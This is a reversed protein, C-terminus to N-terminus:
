SDIASALRAFDHELGANEFIRRAETRYHDAGQGGVNAGAAGTALRQAIDAYTRGLEPQARMRQGEEIAARWFKRAQRPSGLLWSLRGSLQLIETRQTRVKRAIGLAYKRSKLAARALGKHARQDGANNELAQVAHHLSAVAYACLHWAPVVQSREITEAAKGLSLAAADLDGWLTQIKAKTGLALVKLSDEDREAYYKEAAEFAEELRREELLLIATMGDHNSQAFEYGYVDSIEALASLRERAGPFDGQRLRRDCDLGLYTQVDWFQGHQMAAQLLAPDVEKASDWDGALYNTVFRMAQYTFADTSNGERRVRKAQRLFQRSLAFSLGSYGVFAAMTAYMGCAQDIQRPDTRNLRRVGAVSDMFVRRPDSTTEARGKMYMVEIIQRQRPLDRVDGASGAYLRYLVALVDLGFKLNAALPKRPVYQGLQELTQDFHDVSASLDGINWLAVAINRELRIRKEADGGDPHRLVYLRSAEQFLNLAERSAASKAAAEGANFLYEEAKELNEARSYHYALMGYFDDLRDEFVSEVTEAVVGHFEKRTQLLLSEYITQQALAHAFLYEIEDIVTRDGVAVTWGAKREMLLQKERLIALERDLSDGYGQRLLIAAIVSRHFNRGIVSGIQLLRRTTEDLRDVRAMIVEQITGPIVVNSIGATARYGEGDLELVGQDILSRIVEEVYFPNGEAKEAILRRTAAPLDDARLLNDILATTDAESLPALRIEAFLRPDHFVAQPLGRAAAEAFDPRFIAVILLRSEPVLRLVVELLRVSSQDAWHLDDLVVLLPEARAMAAFLQRVSKFIMKELAEGDIQSVRAADTEGLRIGMLTALFPYVEAHDDALVAKIANTLKAGASDDTDDDDIRAWNRFLDVFPHFSLNQGISTARGEVVVISALSEHALLEAMLRSKGLGAEGILHVIGGVGDALQEVQDVLAQLEGRRGVLGSGIVGGAVPSRRRHARGTVSRLEYASVPQAKGKLKLPPLADYDFADRTYRYTEPGVYIAGVASADKLRSALNVTDGMVTYDRRVRGGIEGAIVLGTNVGLRVTIAEPLAEDANFRAVTNRIEIAANVAQQPANEIANPVGFLAMLGEGIYKDVIGGYHMVVSELAAFCRNLVETTEIAELHAGLRKFGSLDAFLVTAQRRESERKIRRYAERVAVLEYVQIPTDDERLTITEVPRFDFHNRAYRYTSPGVYIQGKGSLDELYAALSVADGTVSYERKVAGGIEGSLVGGTGIGVHIDLPTPLRAEKNFDYIAQRIDASAEVAAICTDTSDDVLGFVAMVCDGIYKNIAGGHGIIIGELVEFCRNMIATVDEPDMQESIATFGSIDAFIVTAQRQESGM